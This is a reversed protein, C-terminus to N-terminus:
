ELGRFRSRAVHEGGAEGNKKGRYLRRRKLGAFALRREGGIEREVLNM